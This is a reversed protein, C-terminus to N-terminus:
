TRDFDDITKRSATLRTLDTIDKENDDIPGKLIPYGKTIRLASRVATALNANNFVVIDAPNPLTINPPLTITTGGQQLTYLVSAKEM